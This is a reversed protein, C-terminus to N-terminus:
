RHWHNAAKRREELWENVEVNLRQYPLVEMADIMMKHRSESEQAQGM